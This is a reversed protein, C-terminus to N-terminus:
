QNTIPQNDGQNPQSNAGQYKRWNVITILTGRKTTEKTLFSLKEFRDLATRLEMASVDEPLRELLKARSTYFQGPQLTFEKGLVDWKKEKWTAMFLLNILICQQKATSNAWVPSEQLKRYLKIFGDYEAM